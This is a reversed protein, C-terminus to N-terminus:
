GGVSRPPQGSVGARRPLQQPVDRHRRIVHGAPPECEGAALGPRREGDDVAHRESGRHRRHHQGQRQRTGRPVHGHPLHAEPERPGRLRSSNLDYYKVNANNDVKGRENEAVPAYGDTDFATASFTVSTKGWVDSARVDFQPSQRSGYLTKFEVTRRRAPETMINIVGGMAYNGYLSSSTNDVLEIRDAGEMPVRSWYVLGGFPDNFPVGDLLVLTRSVGSPGIGAAIRGATTPHSALSSTRRFLSFTPVQRLMDDAAVAASQRITEQRV